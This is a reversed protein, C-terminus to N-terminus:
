QQGNKTVDMGHTEKKAQKEMHHFAELINDFSKVQKEIEIEFQNTRKNLGLFTMKM